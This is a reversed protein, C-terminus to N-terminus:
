PQNRKRHHNLEDVAAVLQTAFTIAEGATMTLRMPGFRVQIRPAAPHAAVTVAAVDLQGSSMLKVVVM